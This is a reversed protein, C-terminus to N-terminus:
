SVVCTFCLNCASCLLNGHAYQLINFPPERFGLALGGIQNPTQFSQLRKLLRKAVGYLSEVFRAGVNSFERGLGSGRCLGEIVGQLREALGDLDQPSGVRRFDVLFKRFDSRLEFAGGCLCRFDFGVAGLKLFSQKRLERICGLFERRFYAASLFRSDACDDLSETLLELVDGPLCCFDFGAVGLKLISQKGFKRAYGLFERCFYAASLFRSGACDNLSETLM